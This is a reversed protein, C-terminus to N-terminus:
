KEMKLAVIWKPAKEKSVPFSMRHLTAVSNEKLMRYGGQIDRGIRVGVNTFYSCCICKLLRKVTEPTLITKPEDNHVKSKQGWNVDASSDSRILLHENEDEMLGEEQENHNLFILPLSSSNLLFFVLRLFIINMKRSRELHKEVRIMPLLRSKIYGLIMLAGSPEEQQRSFLDKEYILFLSKESSFFVFRKFRIHNKLANQMMYPKIMFDYCWQDRM